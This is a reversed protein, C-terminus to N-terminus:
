GDSLEASTVLSKASMSSCVSSPWPAAPASNCSASTPRAGNQIESLKHGSGVLVWVSVLSLVSVIAYIGIGVLQWGGPLQILVLASIIMPAAIFLLESLVSVLGLSFSEAAHDTAKSRESLHRAM